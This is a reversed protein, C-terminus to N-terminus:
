VLEKAAEVRAQKNWQDWLGLMVEPTPPVPGLPLVHLVIVEGGAATALSAVHPLAAKAVDFFDTPWLIKRFGARKRM